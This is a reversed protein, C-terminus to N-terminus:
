KIIFIHIKIFKTCLQMTLCLFSMKEYEIMQQNKKQFHLKTLFGLWIWLNTSLDFDYSLTMGNMRILNLNITLLYFKLRFIFHFIVWLQSILTKQINKWSPWARTLYLFSPLWLLLNVEYVWFPSLEVAMEFPLYQLHLNVGFYLHRSLQLM